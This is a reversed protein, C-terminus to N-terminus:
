GELNLKRIDNTENLATKRQVKRLYVILRAAATFAIVVWTFINGSEGSVWTSFM